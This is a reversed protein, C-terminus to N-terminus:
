ETRLITAMTSQIDLNSLGTVIEGNSALRNRAFRALLAQEIRRAEDESSTPQQLALEWKLCTVESAMPASYAALRMIPDSAYGIKFALERGRQDKLALVYVYWIAHEGFRGNFEGEHKPALKSNKWAVLGRGLLTKPEALTVARRDLSLLRGAITLDLEVVTSQARLHQAGTLPGVLRSFFNEETTIQWVFIPHLAYPFASAARETIGSTEIENIYDITNVELSSVQYLGLVRGRYEPSTAEGKTGVTFVFDGEELVKRAQTRAAKSGFTLPWCPDGPPGWVYTFYVKSM